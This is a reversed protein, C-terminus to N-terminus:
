IESFSLGITHLALLDEVRREKKKGGEEERGEDDYEKTLRM